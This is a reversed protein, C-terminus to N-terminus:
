HTGFAVGGGLGFRAEETLSATEAGVHFSGGALTNTVESTTIAQPSAQTGTGNITQFFVSGRPIITTKLPCSTGTLEFQMFEGGIEGSFPAFRWYNTAGRMWDAQIVLNATTISSSITCGAPKFVTVGVFKLKGSGVASLSENKIECKSCEVGTMGLEVTQEAVRVTFTASGVQEAAISASGSLETGPSSGTYWKVDFTEAVSALASSALVASFAASVLLAASLKKLAM